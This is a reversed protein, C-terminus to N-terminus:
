NKNPNREALVTNKVILTLYLNGCEYYRNKKRTYNEAMNISLFKFYKTSLPSQSPVRLTVTRILILGRCGRAHRILHSWLPPGEDFVLFVSTRHWLLQLVIFIGEHEFARFASYLGINQLGEGAIYVDGYILSLYKLQAYIFFWDAL